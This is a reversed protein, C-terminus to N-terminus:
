ADEGGRRALRCIREAIEVAANPKSMALANSKMQQLKSDDGLCERIIEFLSESSLDRQHAVLAAGHAAMAEANLRQHDDAATPLPILVAPIGAATLEAITTGGARAIVLDAVAYAAAMDELYACVYNPVTSGAYAKKVMDVSFEGACHIVQISDAMQELTSLGCVFLENVSLAGQSGGTVLVTKRGASLGFVEYQAERRGPFIEERVPNGSFQIPQGAKFYEVSEEWQCEISEAWRSLLRNARGPLVNQELLVIPIGRLSASIAPFASAFGGLGVIVDPKFRGVAFHASFLSGISRLAFLPLRWLGSKRKQTKIQELRFGHQAVIRQELGGQSGFFVIEAEPLQEAIRCAVTLGTMLHGGTGGGAFAIRLPRADAATAADTGPSNPNGPNNHRLAAESM